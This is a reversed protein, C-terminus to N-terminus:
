KAERRLKNIRDRNAKNWSNAKLSTCPRCVYHWGRPRHTTKRCKVKTRPRRCRKCIPDPERHGGRSGGWLGSGKRPRAGAKKTKGVM